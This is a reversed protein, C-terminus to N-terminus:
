RPAPARARSRSRSLPSPQRESAYYCFLLYAAAAGLLHWVAHGQLWSDPDCLGANTANWIAFALAMVAGAALAYRGDAELQRRRLMALELGLTLALLAGFALNGSYRVVPVETSVTGILECGAVGLAFL